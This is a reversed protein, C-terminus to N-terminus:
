LYNEHGELGTKMDKRKEDSDTRKTVDINAAKFADMNIKLSNNTAYQKIDELSKFYNGDPSWYHTTFSDNKASDKDRTKECVWGNDLPIILNDKNSINADQEEDGSSVDVTQNNNLRSISNSQNSNNKAVAKSKEREKMKEQAQKTLIELRKRTQRSSESLVRPERNHKGISRGDSKNMFLDEGDEDEESDDDANVNAGFNAKMASLIDKPKVPTESSKQRGESDDEANDTQRHCGFEAAWNRSESLQWSASTLSRSKSVSSPTVDTKNTDASPSSGKLVSCEKKSKHAKLERSTRLVLGCLKCKWGGEKAAFLNSRSTPKKKSHAIAIHSELDDINNFNDGCVGCNVTVNETDNEELDPDDSRNEIVDITEDFASTIKDLLDQKPNKARRPSVRQSLKRKRAM